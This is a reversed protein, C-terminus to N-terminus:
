AEPSIPYKSVKSLISKSERGEKKSKPNLPQTEENGDRPSKRCRKTNNIPKQNSYNAAIRNIELM